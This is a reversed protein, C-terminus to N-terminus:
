SSKLFYEKLKQATEQSVVPFLSSIQSEDPKIQKNGLYIQLEEGEKSIGKLRYYPGYKVGNITRYTAHLHWKNRKSGTNKPM